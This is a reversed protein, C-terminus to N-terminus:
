INKDSLNRASKRPKRVVADGPNPPLTRKTKLICLDDHTNLTPRTPQKM